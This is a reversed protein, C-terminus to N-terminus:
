QQHFGLTMSKNCAYVFIRLGGRAAPDGAGCYCVLGEVFTTPTTPIPLPKWRLQEPTSVNPELTASYQAQDLKKWKGQGAVSPRIRYWWTRQNSDRPATFSTGNIQEAVLGHPCKMPTNGLPPLSGEIAESVHQNGFGKLYKYKNPIEQKTTTTTTSAM